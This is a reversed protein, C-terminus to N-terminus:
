HNKTYKSHQVVMVAIYKWFVENSDFCVRYRKTTVQVVERM